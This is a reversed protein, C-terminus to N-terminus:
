KLLEQIELSAARRVAAEETLQAALESVRHAADSREELLQAHLTEIATCAEMLQDALQTRTTKSRNRLEASRADALAQPQALFADIRDLEVALACSAEVLAVVDRGSARNREENKMAVLLPAAGEIVVKLLYQVDPSTVQSRTAVVLQRTAAPFISLDEVPQTSTEVDDARAARSVVILVLATTFWLAPSVRQAAFAGAAFIAVLLISVSPHAKFRRTGSPASVSLSTM